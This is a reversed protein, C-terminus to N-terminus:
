KQMVGKDKLLEFYESPVEVPDGEKNVYTIKDKSSSSFGGIKLRNWKRSLFEKWTMQLLGRFQGEGNKKIRMVAIYSQNRIKDKTSFFLFDPHKLPYYSFERTWTLEYDFRPTESSDLHEKLEKWYTKPDKAREKLGGIDIKKKSTLVLLGIGFGAFLILSGTGITTSFFNKTYSVVLLVGMAIPVILYVLDNEESEETSENKEEM